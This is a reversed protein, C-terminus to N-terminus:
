KFLELTRDTMSSFFIRNKAQRLDEILAWLAADSSAWSKALSSDGQEERFVDIDFIISLPPAIQGAQQDGAMTIIAMASPNEVKVVLRMFLGAIPGIATPLNPATNFWDALEISESPVDIRNIYRLGLRTVATPKAAARFLLWLDHAEKRLSEWDTYPKLRNFTFGDLRAQFVQLRDDSGFAYGLHKPAEARTSVQQTAAIFQVQGEFTMRKDRRPYRERVREQLSSLSKMLTSPAFPIRIDILAESIPANPLHPWKEDMGDELAGIARAVDRIGEIASATLPRCNHQGRDLRNADSGSQLVHGRIKMAVRGVM